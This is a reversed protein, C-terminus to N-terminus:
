KREYKICIMHTIITQFGLFIKCFNLTFSINERSENRPQVKIKVTEKVFLENKSAVKLFACM